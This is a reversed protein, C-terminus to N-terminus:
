CGLLQCPLVLRSWLMFLSSRGENLEPPPNLTQDENFSDIQECVTLTLNPDDTVNQDRLEIVSRSSSSLESEVVRNEGIAISM